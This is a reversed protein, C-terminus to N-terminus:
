ISGSLYLLLLVNTTEENTIGRVKTRRERLREEGGKSASFRRYRNPSWSCRSM